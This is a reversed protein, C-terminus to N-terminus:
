LGALKRVLAIEAAYDEYKEVPTELFFPLQQLWPHTVVAEIGKEGLEGRGINAHRDKHSGLGYVSDNLHMAKVRDLGIEKDIKELLADIGEKSRLDWGAAFLHCSDLCIGVGKPFGLNKLILGLHEIEGGIETGQGAMTELLLQVGDPTGVVPGVEELVEALLRSVRNIGETMGLGGHTGPHTVVLEAGVQHVRLLDDRVVMRAFEYIKDTSAALNVTYPLHGIIPYIDRQRREEQWLDAEQAAITRAAGGRPNRTFFQFANAGIQSAMAAAEPFGKAISLHAGLRM